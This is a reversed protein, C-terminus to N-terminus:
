AYHAAIGAFVCAGVWVNYRFAAFCQAPERTRILTFHYLACVTAAALGLWFPLTYHLVWGLVSYLGLFLGYCVMVAIVDYRGFTLASTKIGLALDDKRDAMAYETDYALTWAINAVMMIGVTWPLGGQVEAFAMPIGFGFALGLYAQPLAIYRKSFPYSAALLVAGVALIQTFLTCPIILWAALLTLAVAVGVAEYSTIRGATLPRNRTRAVHRDFDRDAYDNIACGACRMLITGSIFIFLVKWPPMGEAAIWLANLTPWLLLWIGVPKDLRVLQIYDCVRSGIRYLTAHIRCRSPIIKKSM